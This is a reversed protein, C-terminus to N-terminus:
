LGTARSGCGARSSSQPPEASSELSHFNMILFLITSYFYPNHFADANSSSFIRLLPFTKHRKKCQQWVNYFKKLFLYFKESNDLAVHNSSLTSMANKLTISCPM